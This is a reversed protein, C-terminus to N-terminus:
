LAWDFEVNLDAFEAIQFRLDEAIRDGWRAWEDRNEASDWLEDFHLHESWFDTWRRLEGTLADSLGLDAPELLYKDGGSEWLPWEAAYEPFLRIVRRAMM